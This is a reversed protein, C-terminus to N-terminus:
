EGVPCAKLCEICHYGGGITLSHYYNWFQPDRLAEKIEETSKPLLDRLYRIFSGLGYKSGGKLCKRTDVVMDESIAEMPCGDICLRCEACLEESFPADPALPADTVVAGFNVRPGFGPTIVLRNRGMVGLGAAVAAHKLSLDGVMGLTERSVEVPEEPPIVVARYGAKELFRGAYYGIRALEGYITHSEGTFIDMNGSGVVGKLMRLGFVVVSKAEPMIRQPPRPPYSEPFDRADTIGVLDAGEGTVFEKVAEKALM